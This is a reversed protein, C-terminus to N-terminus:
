DRLGGTIVVPDLPFGVETVKRGYVCLAKFCMLLVSELGLLLLMQWGLLDEAESTCGPVLFEPLSCCGRELSNLDVNTLGTMRKPGQQFSVVPVDPEPLRVHRCHYLVSEVLGIRDLELVGLDQGAFGAVHVAYDPDVAQNQAPSPLRLESGSLTYAAEGLHNLHKHARELAYNCMREKGGSGSAM